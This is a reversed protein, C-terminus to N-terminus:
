CVCAMTPWSSSAATPRMRSRWASPKPSCRNATPQHHGNPVPCHAAPPARQVTSTRPPIPKLLAYAFGLRICDVPSVPRRWAGMRRDHPKDDRCLSMVYANVATRM